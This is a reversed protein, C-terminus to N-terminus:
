MESKEFSKEEKATLNKTSKSCKEMVGNEHHGNLNMCTELLQKKTNSIQSYFIGLFLISLQNFRQYLIQIQSVLKVITSRSPCNKEKYSEYSSIVCIAGSSSLESETSNERGVIKKWRGIMM